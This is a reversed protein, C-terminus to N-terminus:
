KQGKNKSMKRYSKNTKKKNIGCKEAVSRDSTNGYRYATLGEQLPFKGETNM